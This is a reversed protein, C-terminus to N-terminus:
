RASTPRSRRIALSLVVVPVIGVAVITLAATAAESLREDSALLYVRVALTDFNFPRVILTAPLEKLTDVFVLLLGTLMSGRLLPLHVRRLTGGQGEGLSRAVDDMRPTIRGLGVDVSNFALALFRVVYAFLLAFITGSLLLGTSVGFTARMWADVGNDFAGFPLLVGVAIVSGPATYGLTSVWATGQMLPTPTLRLGYGVVLALTVALVGALSALVLSNAALTLFAGGFRQDGYWIALWFLRSAPVLFGVAIPATCALIALGARHGTLRYPALPRVPGRAQGYRRRGRSLRELGIVLVVFLLLGAALKAAGVPSGMGFWSLYIGTTFTDVEFHKVTGFDALAEMMVLALGAVMAPRALPLAVTFFARWPGRGLSRAAEMATVSQELFATRALLYIYPYLVATLVAIAGGLSRVEPFWYQGARWGTWGRLATQVPGPFQFLDGYTYALLYAPMAMPLILAWECLRSGPFRCVTVLWAVGVGVVLAGTGVGALLAVTNLLYRPLTLWVLDAWLGATPLTLSRLVTLVPISVLLALALGFLPLPHRPFLGGARRLSAAPRPPCRRSARGPAPAEAVAM